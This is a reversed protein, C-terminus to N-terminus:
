NRQCRQPDLTELTITARMTDLQHLLRLSKGYHPDTHRLKEKMKDALATYWALHDSATADIIHLYCSLAQLIIEPAEDTDGGVLRPPQDPAFVIAYEAAALHYPKKKKTFM